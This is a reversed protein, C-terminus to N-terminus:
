CFLFLTLQALIWNIEYIGLFGYYNSIVFSSRDFDKCSYNTFLVPQFDAKYFDDYIGIVFM